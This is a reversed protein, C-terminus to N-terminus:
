SVKPSYRLGWRLGVVRGTSDRVFDGVTEGPAVVPGVVDTDVLLVETPPLDFLKAVEPDVQPAVMAVALGADTTTVDLHWQGSDYRGLYEERPPVPDLPTGSRPPQGLFAEFAWDTLRASVGSGARANALVVVAFDHEPALMLSSLHLNDVNGTHGVVTVGNRDELLWSLGIGTLTSRLEVTPQQMTGRLQESMPTRATETEGRLHYRAFRLTDAITSVAGGAPHMGRQLPWRPFAQPTGDVTAHGVVTRRGVVEWPFFFTDTMGLPVLVRERVAAEYTTGTLVELLRGAVYYASNSYSALQGPPTTQALTPLVDAVARRLADDAWSAGVEVDGVWGATHNLLQRVTVTARVAPDSLRLEPLHRVVQDDLDLRGEAVLSMLATATLPKTVSGILFLTDPTVPLPDDISTVGGTAVWTDDGHLVGVACGPLPRETLEKDLQAQLGTGRGSDLVTVVDPEGQEHLPLV